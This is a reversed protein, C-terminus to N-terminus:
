WDLAVLKALKACCIVIALLAARSSRYACLSVEKGPPTACAVNSSTCRSRRSPGHAPHHLQSIPSMPTRLRPLRTEFNARRPPLRKRRPLTRHVPTLSFTDRPHALLSSLLVFSGSRLPVRVWPTTGVLRRFEGITMKNEIRSNQEGANDSSRVASHLM